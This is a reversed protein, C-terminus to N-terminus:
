AGRFLAFIILFIFVTGPICYFRILLCGFHLLFNLFYSRQVHHILVTSSIVRVPTHFRFYLYCHIFGSSSIVTRINFFSRIFVYSNRPTNFSFYFYCLLHIFDSSVLRIYLFVPHLLLQEPYILVGSQNDSLCLPRLTCLVVPPKADTQELIFAPPAPPPRLTPAHPGSSM